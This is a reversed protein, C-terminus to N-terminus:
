IPRETGAIDCLKNRLSLRSLANSGVISSKQASKAALSPPNPLSNPMHRFTQNKRPYRDSLGKRAAKDVSALVEDEVTAPRQSAPLAADCNTGAPVWGGQCFLM